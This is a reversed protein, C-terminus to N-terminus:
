QLKAWFPHQREGRSRADELMTALSPEVRGDAPGLKRGNVTARIPQDFNVMEPSLWITARAAGTHVLVNNSKPVIKAELRAPQAGRRPPWDSPEVMALPPLGQLEVWWFYNDWTRMTSVKIADPYFDRTRRNMWDFLRQIEDSFHEHGRGQFEVVTLDFRRLMYRDLDQANAALKNADLEGLVVYFPLHQANEWYRKCYRESRGVIPIVGAWLDPHALGLDWAADAGASHGSLFVRNSDISFRRCADRLSALVADHERASYEYSRQNPKMWQVALVIYGHRGAQGQRQGKADAGGAWWDLQLQPSSGGGNLTVVVPYRRYPTYEPPLQVFYDVAPEQELGPVELEFYGPRQQAEPAPALPPKLQALLRSITSASAGEQKRIEDLLRERKLKQPERLYALVLNRVDYLSAAVPLNTQGQGSGMLWGSVALALKEESSLQPDDALRVFDALRDLSHISLEQALEEYPARCRARLREDRIAAYHQKLQELVKAGQAQTAAYEALAERVQQLLEGGVHEVKFREPFAQLFAYALQHQGAQRRLKIEELVRRANVQRVERVYGQQQEQPFDKLLKDIELNADQYRDAQLFLRILQKRVQLKKADGHAAVAQEVIQALTDRPISSTAIRMDWVFPRECALGEVKTWHPTLMTIGQIVDVRGSEVQMSYTRRGFKDFPTVQLAPGVRGVRSGNEAVAQRIAIREPLERGTPQMVGAVQFQPVYIRRLEDDVLVIQRLSAASAGNGGLPDDALRALEGIAGELVRGDKMQIGAAPALEGRLWCACSALVLTGLAQVGRGM